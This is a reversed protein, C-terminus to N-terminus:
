GEVSWGGSAVHSQCPVFLRRLLYLEIGMAALALPMMLWGALDHFFTQAAASGIGAYVLGTATVRVMNM